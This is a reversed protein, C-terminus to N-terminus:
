PLTATLQKKFEAWSWKSSQTLSLITQPPVNEEKLCWERLSEQEVKSQLFSQWALVIDGKPSVTGAFSLQEQIYTM